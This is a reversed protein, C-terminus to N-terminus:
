SQGGCGAQEGHSCTQGLVPLNPRLQETEYQEGGQEPQEFEGGARGVCEASEPQSNRQKDDPRIRMASDERPDAYEDCEDGQVQQLM